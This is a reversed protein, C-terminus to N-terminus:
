RFYKNAGSLRGCERPVRIVLLQNLYERPLNSLRAVIDMTGM